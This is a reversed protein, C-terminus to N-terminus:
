VGDSSTLSASHRRRDRLASRKCDKELLARRESPFAGALVEKGDGLIGVVSCYASKSLMYLKYLM